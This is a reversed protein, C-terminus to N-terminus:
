TALQSTSLRRVLTSQVQLVLLRNCAPHVLRGQLSQLVKYEHKLMDRQDNSAKQVKIAVTRNDPTTASYVKGACDSLREFDTCTSLTSFTGKGIEQHIVYVTGSKSHLATGPALTPLDPQANGQKQPAGKSRKRQASSKREDSM